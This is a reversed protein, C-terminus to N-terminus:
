LCPGFHSAGPEVIRGWIATPTALSTHEMTQSRQEEGYTIPEESNCVSTYASFECITQGPLLMQGIELCTQMQIRCIICNGATFSDQFVNQVVQVVSIILNLFVLTTRM